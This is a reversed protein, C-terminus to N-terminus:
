SQTGTAAARLADVEATLTAVAVSPVAERWEEPLAQRVCALQETLADLDALMLREAFRVGEYFADVKSLIQPQLDSGEWEAAIQEDSIAKM